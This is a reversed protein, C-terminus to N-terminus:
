RYYKPVSISMRGKRDREIRTGRYGEEVKEVKEQELVLAGDPLREARVLAGADRNGIKYDHHHRGVRTDRLEEELAKIERRIDRQSRSASRHRVVAVPAVSVDDSPEYYTTPTASTTYSTVTRAPSPERIVTKNVIEVNAPPAADVVVPAPAPAPATFIEERREEMINGAASRAAALELETKRYDESLKLLEDINERGLAKLVIVTNGEETYPYGLEILARKSVLRAPIRTKGKKPYENRIMTGGSASSSRTSTSSSRSSASYARTTRSERSRDRGRRRRSDRYVEREKLREPMPMPMPIPMTRFEEDGYHGPDAVQIEDYHRRNPPPERTRSRPLPIPVYPPARFEERDRRYDEREHRFDDRRAPPGYEERVHDKELFHLPPPRRDFTDLSSQRRLLVNPRRAPPPSPSRLDVDREKEFVVRRDFEREPERRPPYRPEPDYHRRDRVFDDDFSGRYSRSYSEASRERPARPAPPPPRSYYDDDRDDFRPPRDDPYRDREYAFRDRDWRSAM